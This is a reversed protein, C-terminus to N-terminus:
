RAALEIVNHVVPNSNVGVLTIRMEVAAAAAVVERYDAAVVVHLETTTAMVREHGAVGDTIDRIRPASTVPALAPMPMGWPNAPKLVVVDAPVAHDSEPQEEQVGDDPEWGNTPDSDDDDDDDAPYFFEAMRNPYPDNTTLRSFDYHAPDINSM